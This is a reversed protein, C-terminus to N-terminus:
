REGEDNSVEVGFFSLVKQYMEYSMEGDGISIEEFVERLLDYAEISQELKERLEKDKQVIEIDKIDKSSELERFSKWENSESDFYEGDRFKAELTDDDIFIDGTDLNMAMVTHAYTTM